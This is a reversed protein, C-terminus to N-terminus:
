ITILAKLNSGKSIHYYTSRLSSGKSIHNYVVNVLTANLTYLIWMLWSAVKELQGARLCVFIYQLLRDEDEKDLDDLLKGERMAADPDQLRMTSCHTM